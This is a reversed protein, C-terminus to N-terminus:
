PQGGGLQAHMLALPLMFPNLYEASRGVMYMPTPAAVVLEVPEGRESVARLYVLPQEIRASGARGLRVTRRGAADVIVLTVPSDAEVRDWYVTVRAM